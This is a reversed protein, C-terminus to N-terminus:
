NRSHERNYLWKLFSIRYSLTPHDATRNAKMYLDNEGLLQLAMIYSYGGLGIAECFRYALLDSEIEQDRSYKFQFYYASNSIVTFLDLSNNAIGSYNARSGAGAIAAVAYLGAVIGGVIRRNQEKEYQKWLNVTAHQCLFHTIEHACIGLLLNNNLHYKLVIGSTLYIHGYPTAFANADAAPYIRFDTLTQANGGVLQNVLNIEIDSVQYPQCKTNLYSQMKTKNSAVVNLAQQLMKRKPDRSMEDQLELYTTNEKLMCRWFDASINANPTHSYKFDYSNLYNEFQYTLNSNLNMDMMVTACKSLHSYDQIAMQHGCQSSLRLLNMGKSENGMFFSNYAYNYLMLGLYTKYDSMYVERLLLDEEALSEKFYLDYASDAEAYRNLKYLTTSYLGLYYLPLELEDDQLNAKYQSLYKDALNYNQQYFYCEAKLPTFISGYRDEPIRKDWKDCFMLCEDYKKLRKMCDACQFLTSYSLSDRQNLELAFKYAKEYDKNRMALSLSDPLTEILISDAIAKPLLDQAAVVGCILMAGM